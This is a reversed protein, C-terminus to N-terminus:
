TFEHIEFQLFVTQSNSASGSFLVFDEGPHIIWHSKRLLKTYDENYSVLVDYMDIGDTNGGYNDGYSTHASNFYCTHSNNRSNGVIMRGGIKFMYYYGDTTTSQFMNAQDDNNNSHANNHPFHPFAYKVTSPATYLVQETATSPTVGPNLTIGWNSTANPAHDWDITYIRSPKLFPAVTEATVGASPTLRM